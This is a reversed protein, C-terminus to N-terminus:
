HNKPYIQLETKRNGVIQLNTTCNLIHKVKSKQLRIGFTYPLATRTHLRVNIAQEVVRQTFPNRDEVRKSKGM